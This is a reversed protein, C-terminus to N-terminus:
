QPSTERRAEAPLGFSFIASGAAIAVYQRGDLSYTIPTANVRGGVNIKWLLKGSTADVAMIYGDRDGTFVVGGATALTGATSPRFMKFEWKM